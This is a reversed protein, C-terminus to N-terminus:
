SVRAWRTATDDKEDKPDETDNSFFFLPTAAPGV